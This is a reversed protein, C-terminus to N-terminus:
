EELGVYSINSKEEELHLYKEASSFYELLSKVM